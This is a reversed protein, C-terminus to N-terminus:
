AEVLSVRGYAGKGLVCIKNLEDLEVQILFLLVDIPANPSARGSPVQAVLSCESGSEVTAEYGTGSETSCHYVFNPAAHGRPIDQQELM